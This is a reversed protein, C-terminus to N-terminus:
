KRKLNRLVILGNQRRTAMHEFKILACYKTGLHGSRQHFWRAISCPQTYMQYQVAQNGMCFVKRLTPSIKGLYTFPVEDCAILVLAHLFYTIHRCVQFRM